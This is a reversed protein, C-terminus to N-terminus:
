RSRSRRATRACGSPKSISSGSAGAIRRLYDKGEERRDPPLLISTPQGMAEEASYGYLREAAANWGIVIGELTQMVISDDSSEVAASFLRERVALHDRAAETRRREEVEHELASTKAKTEEVMRAFARALM